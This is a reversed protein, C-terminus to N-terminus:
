TRAEASRRRRLPIWPQRAFTRLGAWIVLAALAWQLPLTHGYGQDLAVGVGAGVQTAGVIAQGPPTALWHETRTLEALHVSVCGTAWGLVVGAAVDSPWHAGSVIRSLGIAAAIALSAALVWPRRWLPGGALFLICVVAAATMAHGSPMSRLFLKPGVVHLNAAAFVAAPRPMPMLQKVLHTFGGGVALMWPLTAFIRPHRRAGIALAALATVGLGAVSLNEWVQDPLGRWGNLVLFLPGDLGHLRVLAAAM